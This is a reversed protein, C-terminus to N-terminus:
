KILKQVEKFAKTGAEETLEFLVSEYTALLIGEQKARAIAIDTDKQKRSSICDTVLVPEYGHAKLELATQLVCIHAEMGCLIVYPQEEPRKLVTKLVDYASFKLKDLYENTGAAECVAPLTNGLGKTYQQTLYVPVNLVSLGKLLILINTVLAEKQNMAPVLREQVDIAAAAALNRDIKM